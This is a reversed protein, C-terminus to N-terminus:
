HVFFDASHVSYMRRLPQVLLWLPVSALPSDTSSHITCPGVPLEIRLLEHSGILGNGVCEM